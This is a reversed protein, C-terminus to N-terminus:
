EVVRIVLEICLVNQVCLEVVAPEQVGIVQSVYTLTVVKNVTEKKDVVRQVLRM